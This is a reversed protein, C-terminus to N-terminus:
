APLPQAAAVVRNRGQQKAAYLAEDAAKLLAEFEGQSSYEAVGISITIQLEDGRGGVVFAQEAISRRLREAVIEAGALATNSLLVVFEEGGLRYAGCAEAFKQDLKRTGALLRAAVAARLLGRSLTVIAGAQDGRTFGVSSVLGRDSIDM